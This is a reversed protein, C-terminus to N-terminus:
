GEGYVRMSPSTVVVVIIKRPSFSLAEGVCRINVPPGALVVTSMVLRVDGAVGFQVLGLKRLM